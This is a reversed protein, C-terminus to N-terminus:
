FPDSLIACMIGVSYAPQQLPKSTYTHLSWFSCCQLVQVSLSCVADTEKFGLKFHVSYFCVSYLFFLKM